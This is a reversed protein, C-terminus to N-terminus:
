AARDKNRDWERKAGELGERMTSESTKCFCRLFTQVGAIGMLKMVISNPVQERDAAFKRRYAHFLTGRRPELGAAAEADIMALALRDRRVPEDDPGYPFVVDTNPAGDRRIWTWLARAVRADVPVKAEVGKKDLDARFTFTAGAFDNAEDFYIDARRLGLVASARRGTGELVVLMVKLLAFLYGAPTGAHEEALREAAALTLEFRRKDAPLQRPNVEEPIVYDGMPDEALLFEGNKKEEQLAWVILSRLLKMDAEV